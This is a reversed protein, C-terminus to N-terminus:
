SVRAARIRKAHAWENWTLWILFLDFANLFLYFWSHSGWLFEFTQFLIFAIFVGIGLPYAWLWGCFLCVIVMAKIVGHSLLYWAVFALTGTDVRQVLRHGIEAWFANLGVGVTQPFVGLIMTKIEASPLVLLAVGGVLELFANLAKLSLGWLFVRHLVLFTKEKQQMLGWEEPNIKGSHATNQLRSL